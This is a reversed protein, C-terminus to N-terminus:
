TGNVCDGKATKQLSSWQSVMDDAHLLLSGVVLEDAMRVLSTFTKGNVGGDIGLRCRPNQESLLTRTRQVRQLLHPDPKLGCGGAPIAMVFVTELRKIFPVISEIDTNVDIAVGLRCGVSENVNMFDKVLNASTNPFLHLVALDKPRLFNVVLPATDILQFVHTTIMMDIKDIGAECVEKAEFFSPLTLGHCLDIHVSQCGLREMLRLAETIPMELRALSPSLLTM